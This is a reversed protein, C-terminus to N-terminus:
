FEHLFSGHEYYYTIYLSGETRRQGAHLALTQGRTPTEGHCSGGQIAAWSEKLDSSAPSEAHEITLPQSAGRSGGRVLGVGEALQM